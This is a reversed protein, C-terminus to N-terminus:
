GNCSASGCGATCARKKARFDWISAVVLLGFGTLELAQSYSGYFVWFLLAAAALSLLLPGPHRHIRYSYVMGALALILLGTVWKVLLAEDIDVSVGLLSLLAVAGLTGYCAGVALLSTATGLWGFRAPKSANNDTTM